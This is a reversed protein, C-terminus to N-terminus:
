MVSRIKAIARASAAENMLEAAHELPVWALDNSENRDMAIADPRATLALYRVDYHRHDPEGKAAPIPHIELDFLRDVVLTLDDLGSEEEGERLAAVLPTEIGDIHGGMQLWRGLRRHHHLLLREGAADVIFCSATVHGPQFAQRSFADGAGALLDVIERCHQEEFADHPSYGRLEALLSERRTTM